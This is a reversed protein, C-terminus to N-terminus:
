FHAREKGKMFNIGVKLKTNKIDIDLMKSKTGIPLTFTVNLEQLTQTWKYKDTTGGNGEPPPSNDEEEDGEKKEGDSSDTKKTDEETGSPPIPPVAASNSSGVDFTGDAGLEM